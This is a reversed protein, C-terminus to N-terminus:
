LNEAWISIGCFIRLYVGVCIFAIAIFNVYGLNLFFQIPSCMLIMLFFLLIIMQSYTHKNKIMFSKTMCAILLGLLIPVIIVGVIGFDYFLVGPLNLFAYQLLEVNHKLSLNIGFRSLIVDIFTYTVFGYRAASDAAMVTGTIWKGHYMYSVIQIMYNLLVNDYQRNMVGGLSEVQINTFASVSLDNGFSRSQSFISIIYAMLIVIAILMYMKNINPILSKGSLIRLIGTGVIFLFCVLLNMRGGNLFAHIFPVGVGCAMGFIRKSRPLFEFYYYVFFLAVYSFPILINGLFGYITTSTGLALWEYRARRAGATYDIGKVFIRDYALLIIGITSGLTCLFVVRCVVIVRQINEVKLICIKKIDKGWGLNKYILCSFVIITIIFYVNNVTSFFNNYKSTMGLIDLFLLPSWALVFFLLVTGMAGVKKHNKWRLRRIKINM